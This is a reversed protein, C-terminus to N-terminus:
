SSTATDQHRARDADIPNMLFEQPFADGFDLSTTLCRHPHPAYHITYCSCRSLRGQGQEELRQLHSRLRRSPPNYTPIPRSKPGALRSSITPWRRATSKSSATKPICRIRVPRRPIGQLAIYRVTTAPKGPLRTSARTRSNRSRLHPRDAAQRDRGDGDIDADTITVLTEYTKGDDKM